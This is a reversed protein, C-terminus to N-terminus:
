HARLFTESEAVLRILEGLDGGDAMFQAAIQAVEPASAEAPLGLSVTADHLLQQTLCLAAECSSALAAGMSQADHVSVAGTQPLQLVATTDLPLGNETTRFSGDTAFNQLAYGFPDLPKHCSACEPLMEIQELEARRTQGPPLQTVTSPDSPFLQACLVRNNILNGRATIFPISLVSPDTLLGAGDTRPIKSTLLDSLTGGKSSFWMSYFEPAQVEPWWNKLFRDMGPASPVNLAALTSAALDGAWQPTTESPLGDPAPHDVDVIFKFVRQYVVAPPAFEVSRTPPL